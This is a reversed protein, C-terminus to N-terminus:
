IGEQEEYFRELTFGLVAALKKVTHVPGIRQGRELADVYSVSIGASEALQARTMKREKRLAILWERKKAM